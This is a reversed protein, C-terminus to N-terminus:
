SRKPGAPISLGLSLKARIGPRRSRYMGVSVFALVSNLSGLKMELMTLDRTGGSNGVYCSMYEKSITIAIRSM